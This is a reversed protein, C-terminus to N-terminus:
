KKVLDKNLKKEYEQSDFKNSNLFDAVMEIIDEYREDNFFAHPLGNILILNKNNSNIREFIKTIGLYPVLIDDKGQIMLVPINVEKISNKYVKVLDKFEKIIGVFFRTSTEFIFKRDYYKFLKFGPNSNYEFAPAILVLKKVKDYKSALHSAIVGGMSHGIIYIEEYGEKYLVEIQNESEAIWEEKTPHNLFGKEHGPLYYSYVNFSNKLYKIMETHELPSGALGHILLVARKNNM